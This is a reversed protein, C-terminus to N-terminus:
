EEFFKKGAVYNERFFAGYELSSGHVEDYGRLKKTEVELKQLGGYDEIRYEEFNLLFLTFFLEYAMLDGLHYKEVEFDRSEYSKNYENVFQATKM